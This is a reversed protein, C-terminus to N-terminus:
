KKPSKQSDFPFDSSMWEPAGGNMRAWLYSLAVKADARGRFSAQKFTVGEAERSLQWVFVPVKTEPQHLESFRMDILFVCQDDDPDPVVAYYNVAFWKLKDVAPSPEFHELLQHNKRISSIAFDRDPKDWISWYAVHYEGDSEALMRWLFINSLTPAVMMRQIKLGEQDLHKTFYHEAQNKILLSASTYLCLWLIVARGLYTRRKSDKKFFLVLLVGFLMPLTFTLDIISMNNSSFRYDSFPEFIQTGYTTFGDIIVHTFWTLFVFWTAQKQTVGREKHIKALLWGFLWSGLLIASISHSLGRHWSLRQIPDLLPYLLIDLDPLTGFFIGWVFGKWGLQKRLTVEGCLAGLAGQTLSDM